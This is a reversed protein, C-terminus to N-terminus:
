GWQRLHEVVIIISIIPAIIRRVQATCFAFQWDAQLLGFEGQLLKGFPHPLGVITREVLPLFYPHSPEKLFLMKGYDPPLVSQFLNAISGQAPLHQNCIKQLCEFGPQRQIIEIISFPNAPLPDLHKQVFTCAFNPLWPFFPLCPLLHGAVSKPWRALLFTLLLRGSNGFVVNMTTIRQTNFPLSITRAGLCSWAEYVSTLSLFSSISKMLLFPPGFSSYMIVDIHLHVKSCFSNFSSYIPNYIFPCIIISGMYPWIQYLQQREFAKLNFSPCLGFIIKTSLLIAVYFSMASCKIRGVFTIGVLQTVALHKCSSSM